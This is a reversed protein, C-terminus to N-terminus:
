GRRCSRVSEPRGRLAVVVISVVRKTGKVRCRFVELALGCNDLKDPCRYPATLSLGLDPGDQMPLDLWGQCCARGGGGPMELGATMMVQKGQRGYGGGDKQGGGTERIGSRCMAPGTVSTRAKEAQGCESRHRVCSACVCCFRDAVTMRTRGPQRPSEMQGWPIVMPAMAKM